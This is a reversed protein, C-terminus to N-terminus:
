RIFRIMSEPNVIGFFAAWDAHVEADAVAAEVWSPDFAAMRLIEFPHPKGLRLHLEAIQLDVAAALHIVPRSKRWFDRLVNDADKGSWEAIGQAAGRLSFDIHVRPDHQSSVTATAHRLWAGARLRRILKDEFQRLRAELRNPKLARKVSTDGTLAVRWAGWERLTQFAWEARGPFTLWALIQCGAIAEDDSLM